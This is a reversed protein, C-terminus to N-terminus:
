DLMLYPRRRSGEAVVCAGLSEDAARGANYHERAGAIVAETSVAPVPTQVLLLLLFAAPITAM